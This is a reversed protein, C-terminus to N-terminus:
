GSQRESGGHDRDAGELRGSRLRQQARDSPHQPLGHLRKAVLEKGEGDPLSAEQGRAGNTFSAAMLAVTGSLLFLSGRM